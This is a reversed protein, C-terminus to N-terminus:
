GVTLDFPSGELRYLLRESSGYSPGVLRAIIHLRVIMDARNFPDIIAFPRWRCFRSALFGLFSFGFVIAAAGDVFPVGM